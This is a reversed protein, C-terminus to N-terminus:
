ARTMHLPRHFILKHLQTNSCLDLLLPIHRSSNWPQKSTGIITYLFHLEKTLDRSVYKTKELFARYQLGQPSTARPPSSITRTTSLLMSYINLRVEISEPDIIFKSILQTLAPDVLIIGYSRRHKVRIPDKSRCFLLVALASVAYTCNATKISV